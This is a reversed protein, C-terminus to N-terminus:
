SWLKLVLSVSQKVCDPDISLVGSTGPSSSLLVVILLAGIIGSWALRAYNLALVMRKGPESLYQVRVALQSFGGVALRAYDHKPPSQSLKLLARALGYREGCIRVVEADAAIEQALEFRNSLDRAIPLFFMAKALARSLLLQLPARSRLHAWEHILVATTEEDDLSELLGTTVLVRPKWFGYCFATPQDMAVVDVYPEIGLARAIPRLRAPLSITTKCLLRVTRWTRYLQRSLEAAMRILGLCAMLLLAVQPLYVLHEGLSDLALLCFNVVHVWLPSDGREAFNLLLMALGAALAVLFLLCFRAVRLASLFPSPEPNIM